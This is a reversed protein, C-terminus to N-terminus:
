RLLNGTPFKAGAVIAAHVKGRSQQTSEIAARPGNSRSTSAFIGTPVVTGAAVRAAVSAALIAPDTSTSTEAWILDLMRTHTPAAAIAAHPAM